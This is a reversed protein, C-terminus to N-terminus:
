DLLDDLSIKPVTVKTRCAAINHRRETVPNRGLHHMAAWWNAGHGVKRFVLWEIAHALEHFFTEALDQLGETQHGPHLQIGISGGLGASSRLNYNWAVPISWINGTIQRPYFMAARVVIDTASNGNADVWGRLNVHCFERVDMISGWLFLPGSPGRM